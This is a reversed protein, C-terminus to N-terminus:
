SGARERMRTLLIQADRESLPRISTLLMNRWHQRGRTLELEELLCHISLWREPELVIIPETKLYFSATMLYKTTGKVPTVGRAKIRRIDSFASKRSPVYCFLLDGEGVQNGTKAYRRSLGFISFDNERDVLWNEFGQEETTM